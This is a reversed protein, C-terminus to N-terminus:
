VFFSTEVRASNKTGGIKKREKAAVGQEKNKVNGPGPHPSLAVRVAEASRNIV